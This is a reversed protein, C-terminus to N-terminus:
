KNPALSIEPHFLEELLSVDKDSVVILVRGELGQSGQSWELYPLLYYLFHPLPQSCLVPLGEDGRAGVEVDAPGVM